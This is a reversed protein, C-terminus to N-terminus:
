TSAHMITHLVSEVLQLDFAAHCDSFIQQAEQLYRTGQIHNQKKHEQRNLLVLGYTHLTRAYELRM